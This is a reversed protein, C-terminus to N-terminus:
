AYESELINGLDDCELFMDFEYITLSHINDGRRKACTVCPKKETYKLGMELGENALDGKFKLLYEKLDALGEEDVEYIQSPAFTFYVKETGNFPKLRAIFSM